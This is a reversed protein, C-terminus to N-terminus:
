PSPLIEPATPSSEPSPLPVGEGVAADTPLVPGATPPEQPPPTLAQPPETLVARGELSGASTPRLVLGSLLSTLTAYAPPVESQLASDTRLFVWEASGADVTLTSFAPLDALSPRARGVVDVLARMSERSTALLLLNNSVAYDFARAPSGFNVYRLRVGGYDTETFAAGPFPAGTLPQALEHFSPELTRLMPGPDAGSALPMVLVADRVGLTATPLVGLIAPGALIERLQRVADAQEKLARRFREFGRLTGGGVASESEVLMDLFTAGRRQIAFMSEGPLASTLGGPPPTEPAAATWVGTTRGVVRAVTRGAPTLALVLPREVPVVAASVPQLLASLGEPRLAVTIPASPLERFLRLLEGDAAWTRGSLGDLRGLDTSRAVFLGGRFSKLSLDPAGSLDVTTLGRVLLVPVPEAPSSGRLLLYTVDTAGALGDAALPGLAQSLHVRVLDTLSGETGEGQPPETRASVFAVAEEPVADAITGSARPFYRLAAWVGIGMLALGLVGVVIARTRRWGGGLSPLPALGYAETTGARWAEAGAPPTISSPLAEGRAVAALDDAM